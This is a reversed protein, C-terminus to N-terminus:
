SPSGPVRKRPRPTDPKTRPTFAPGKPKPPPREVTHPEERPPEPPPTDDARRRSGGGDREAEVLPPHARRLIAAFGALTGWVLLSALFLITGEREHTRFGTLPFVLVILAADVLSDAERLALRVSSWFLTGPVAAWSSLYVPRRQLRAMGLLLAVTMILGGLTQTFGDPRSARQIISAWVTFPLPGAFFGLLLSRAV